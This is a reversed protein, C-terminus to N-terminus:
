RATAAYADIATAINERAYRCPAPAAFCCGDAAYRREQGTARCLLRMHRLCRPTAVCLLLLTILMSAM